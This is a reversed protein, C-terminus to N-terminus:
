DELIRTLLESAKARVEKRNEKDAMMPLIHLINMDMETIQSNRIKEEIMKFAIAIPDEQLMALKITFDAESAIDQEAVTVKNNPSLIIYNYITVGFEEYLEECEEVIGALAEPGFDDFQMSLKVIGDQTALLFIDQEIEFMDRKDGFTNRIIELSNMKDCIRKRRLIQLM